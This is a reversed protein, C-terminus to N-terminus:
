HHVAAPLFELSSTVPVPHYTWVVSRSSDTQHRHHRHAVIFTRPITVACIRAGSRSLWEQSANVIAKKIKRGLFFLLLSFSFLKALNMTVMTLADRGAWLGDSHGNRYEHRGDSKLIWM